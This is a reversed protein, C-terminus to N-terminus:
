KNKQAAKTADTNQQAKNESEMGAALGAEQKKGTMKRYQNKKTAMVKKKYGTRLVWRRFKGYEFTAAFARRGARFMMRNEATPGSAGRVLNFHIELFIQM